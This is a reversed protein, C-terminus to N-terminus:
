EIEPDCERERRNIGGLKSRIATTAAITTTTTTTHVVDGNSRKTRERLVEDGRGREGRCEVNV